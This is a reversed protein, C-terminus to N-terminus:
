LIYKTEMTDLCLCIVATKCKDPYMEEVSSYACGGDICITNENTYLEYNELDDRIRQVAVHGFICTYDEPYECVAVYERSRYPSCWVIDSVENKSLDDRSFTIIENEKVASNNYKDPYMIGSHSLHFKKGNIDLLVVVPLESLYKFIEMQTEDDEKLFMDFTIGGGNNGAFWINNYGHERLHNFIDTEKKSILSRQRERFLYEYMFNEHNGLLLVVNNRKMIDKLIDIGGPNRDIVDGLIYLTDDEKLMDILKLYRDYRGHIDSCVYFAM